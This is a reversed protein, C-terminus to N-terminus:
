GEGWEKKAARYGATHPRALSPTVPKGMRVLVEVVKRHIKQEKKSRMEKPKFRM